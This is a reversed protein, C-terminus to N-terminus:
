LFKLLDSGQLNRISAGADIIRPLSRCRLRRRQDGYGLVTVLLGYPGMLDVRLKHPRHSVQLDVVVRAGEIVRPVFAFRRRAMGNTDIPQIGILAMLSRTASYLRSTGSSRKRISLNPTTKM